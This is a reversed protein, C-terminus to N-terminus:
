SPNTAAPNPYNNSEDEGPRKHLCQFDKEVLIALRDDEIKQEGQLAVEDTNTWSNALILPVSVTITDGERAATLESATESRELAYVLREDAGTGFKISDEFVGTKAFQEVEKQSLRLRIANGKIRLKVPIV